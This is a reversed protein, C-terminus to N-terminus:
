RELAGTSVARGYYVATAPDQEVGTIALPNSQKVGNRFMTM